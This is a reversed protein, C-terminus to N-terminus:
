RHARWSAICMSSIRHLDAQTVSAKRTRRALSVSLNWDRM